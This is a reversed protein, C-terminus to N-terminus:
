DNHQLLWAPLRILDDFDVSQYAKLTADYSRYIRAAEAESPTAALREAKDPDILANKWLSISQQVAKLRAKDTTALMDQIIALADAADMISFQEKLGLHKAEERLFRVGLSHFTSVTLGKTLRSDVLNKVRE